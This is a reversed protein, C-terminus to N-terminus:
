YPPQLGPFMPFHKVNATAPEGDLRAATAAVALDAIGIGPHSRRWRRGLEGARRAIGEDVDVFDLQSLLREAPSRERSRLGRLIEIRTVESCAPPAELEMLFGRAAEDGRLIDIVVTTDM